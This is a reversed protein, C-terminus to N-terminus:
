SNYEYTTITAEYEELGNSQLWTNLSAINENVSVNVLNLNPKVYNKM